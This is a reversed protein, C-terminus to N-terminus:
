SGHEARSFSIATVPAFHAVGLRLAPQVAQTCFSALEHQFQFCPLPSGSPLSFCYNQLYIYSRIGYSM